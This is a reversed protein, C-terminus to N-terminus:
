NEQLYERILFRLAAEGFWVISTVGHPKSINAVPAGTAPAGDPPSDGRAQGLGPHQDATVRGNAPTVSDQTATVDHPLIRLDHPADATAPSGKQISCSTGM